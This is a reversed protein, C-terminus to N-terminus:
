GRVLLARVFTQGDTATIRVEVGAGTLSVSQIEAPLSQATMLTIVNEATPQAWGQSTWIRLAFAGVDRTLVQEVADPWETAAIIEQIEAPTVVTRTVRVLARDRVLYRVLQYRLAGTEVSPTQRLLVLDNAGILVGPLNTSASPDRAAYRLDADLQAFASQLGRQANIEGSVVERARAVADLGRWSILAIIALITIAVLMEILTFGRVRRPLDARM